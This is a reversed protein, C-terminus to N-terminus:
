QEFSASEGTLQACAKEYLSLAANTNNDELLCVRAKTALFFTDAGIEKEYLELFRRAKGWMHAELSLLCLARLHSRQAPAAVDELLGLRQTPTLAGELSALTEFLVADYSTSLFARLLRKARRPHGQSLLLPVLNGATQACPRADYASQLVDLAWSERGATLLEQGQDMLIQARKQAGAEPTMFGLRTRTELATLAESWNKKEACLDTYVELLPGHQPALPYLARAWEWMRLTDKQSLACLFLGMLGGKKHSEEQSLTYFLHEAKLGEGQALLAQAEILQCLAKNQLRPAAKQLAKLCADYDQCFLSQAASYLAEMTQDEGRGTLRYFLNAPAKFLRKLLALCLVVMALALLAALVFTSVEMDLRMGFWHVSMQGPNKFLWYVLIILLAGQALYFLKRLM